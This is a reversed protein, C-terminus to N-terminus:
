VGPLLGLANVVVREAVGADNADTYKIQVNKCDDGYTESPAPDALDVSRLPEQFVNVGQASSDYCAKFTLPYSDGVGSDKRIVGLDDSLSVFCSGSLYTCSDHNEFVGDQNLDSQIIVERFAGGGGGAWTEYAATCTYDWTIETEEYAVSITLLKVPGIELLSAEGEFESTSISKTGTCTTDHSGGVMVWPLGAGGGPVQPIPGLREQGEVAIASPLALSPVFIAIATMIWLKKELPKM